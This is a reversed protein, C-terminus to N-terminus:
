LYTKLIDFLEKNSNCSPEQFMEKSVQFLEGNSLHMELYKEEKELALYVIKSKLIARTKYTVGPMGVLSNYQIEIYNQNNIIQGLM